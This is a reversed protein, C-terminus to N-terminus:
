GPRGPAPSRSAGILLPLDHDLMSDGDFIFRGDVRGGALVGPLWLRDDEWMEDYPIAAIPTWLPIAEETERAEGDLGSAVFVHVHISYGDCFQFRLEGREELSLPTALLEEEFERRACDIPAEGPDLKGGPGNVKGAGLGRKKRILLVQDGEIAFILTARDRARWDQWDIDALRRPSPRM